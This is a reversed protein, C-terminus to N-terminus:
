ADPYPCDPRLPCSECQPRRAICVRRGHWILAHSAFTWSRKPLLEQLAFEIKVADKSDVLELLNCLRTVHTDVPISPKGFWTGLLVNATKRGVGPLKVLDDMTDPVVGDHRKVLAEGLGHLSRAKNRFFGTSRILEELEGPEAAAYDRAQPYRRFLAPTVQNVREDTCQASLITAVLLELASTHDLACDADGYMKRLRAVIRRARAARLEPEELKRRAKGVRGAKGDKGAPDKRAPAKRATRKRAAPRSPDPM